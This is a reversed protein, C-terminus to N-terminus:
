AVPKRVDYAKAAIKRHLRMVSSTLVLWAPVCRSPLDLGGPLPEMSTHRLTDCPKIEILSPCLTKKQDLSPHFPLSSNYGLSKMNQGSTL